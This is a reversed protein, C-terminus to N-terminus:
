DGGVVIAEDHTIQNLVYKGAMAELLEPSILHALSAIKAKADEVSLITRVTTENTTNQDIKEAWGHINKAYAIKGAAQGPTAYIDNGVWEDMALRANSLVREYDKNQMYRYLTERSIKCHLAMGNFSPVRDNEECWQFYSNVGYLLKRPTIAFARGKKIKEKPPVRGIRTTIVKNKKLAKEKEETLEEFVSMFVLGKKQWFLTRLVLRYGLVFFLAVKNPERRIIDKL